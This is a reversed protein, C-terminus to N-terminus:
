ASDVVARDDRGPVRAHDADSGKQAERRAENEVRLLTVITPAEERFIRLLARDQGSTLYVRLDETDEARVDIPLRSCVRSYWLSLTTTYAASRIQNEFQGWITRRYKTKYEASLGRWLPTVLALALPYIEDM